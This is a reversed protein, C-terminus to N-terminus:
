ANYLAKFKRKIAYGLWEVDYDILIPLDITNDNFFKELAIKTGIKKSFTDQPSCSAVAVKVMHGSTFESCKKYAVTLGGIPYNQNFIHVIGVNTDHALQLLHKREVEQEQKIFMANLQSKKYGEEIATQTEPTFSKDTMNIPINKFELPFPWDKETM